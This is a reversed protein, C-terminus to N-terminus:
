QVRTGPGSTKVKYSFILAPSITWHTFTGAVLSSSRLEIGPVRVFISPYFRSRWSIRQGRYEHHPMACMYALCVFLYFIFLYLKLPLKYWIHHYVDKIWACSLCASRQLSSPACDIYLISLWDPSYFPVQDCLVFQPGTLNSLPNLCKVCLGSSRFEVGSGMHYFSFIFVCMCVWKHICM